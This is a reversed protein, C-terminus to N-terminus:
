AMEFQLIGQRVLSHLFTALATDGGGGVVLTVAGSGSSSASAPIVKEGAQLVALMESGPTGPVVGGTHFHPLHPVSITKGGIGPIWDPVTWSLKGITNNWADSVFNFATRFPLTILDAIKAFASGIWGPVQKLWNWVAEAATKIAGWAVKWATQFWTTKTAILVIVAILAVIGVIILGIPNATLAANLLWQVGTWALTAGKAVGSAVTHAITGATSLGKQVIESKFALTAFDTVGSLADTALAGAMLATTLGTQKNAAKDAEDAQKKKADADKQAAEAAAEAVQIQQKEADTLKGDAAAQQKLDDVHSKAADALDQLKDAENRLAEAHQQSRLRTLEVGSSLAGFAGTATSAKTAMNDTREGVNDFSHAASNVKTEMSKSAAGVQDFAKEL